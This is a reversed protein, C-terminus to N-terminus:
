NDETPLIGYLLECLQLGHDQRLKDMARQEIQSVRQKTINYYAAISTLTPRDESSLGPVALIGYRMKLINAERESLTDLLATIQGVTDKTIYRDELSDDDVVYYSDIRETESLSDESYGLRDQKTTPTELGPPLIWGAAHAFDIAYIIKHEPIEIAEAIKGITPYEGRLRQHEWHYAMARSAIYHSHSSMRIIKLEPLFRLISDKIWYAAYTSFKTGQSPDFKETAKMLGLNGQQILDQFRKWDINKRKAIGKAISIVLRVCSEAMRQRAEVAAELLSDLKAVLYDNLYRQKEHLMYQAANGVEILTCLAREERSTLEGYRAHRVQQLYIGIGDQSQTATTM